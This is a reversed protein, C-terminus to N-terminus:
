HERKADVEPSGSPEADEMDQTIQEEVCDQSLLKMTCSGVTAGEWERAEYATM